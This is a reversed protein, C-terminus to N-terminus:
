YVLKWDDLYIDVYDTRIGTTGWSFTGSTRTMMHTGNVYFKLENGIISFRLTIWVGSKLQGNSDLLSAPLSVTGLTTYVGDWKRKITAYGDRRVSAVYLDDSTRYRGFIHLGSTASAGPQWSSIFARYESVQDTWKIKKGSKWGIAVARFNYTTTWGRRWTGAYKAYLCGSTVDLHSRAAKNSSCEVLTGDSYGEFNEGVWPYTSGAPGSVYSYGSPFANYFALGDSAFLGLGCALGAVVFGTKRRASFALLCAVVAVIGIGYM